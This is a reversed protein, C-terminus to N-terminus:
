QEAAPEESVTEGDSDDTPTTNKNKKKAKSDKEEEDDDKDDKPLQKLIVIGAAIVIGAIVFYIWGGEEAVWKFFLGFHPITDTVVGIIESQKVPKLDESINADGKTYFVGDGIRVIRHTTPITEGEHAFTIVDYLKYSDAKKVIVLDGEDITGAMSGTVVVHYSRGFLSVVPSKYVFKDVVLMIAIILLFLTFAAGVCMSTLRVIEKKTRPKKFWKAITTKLKAFFGQEATGAAIDVPAASAAGSEVQKVDCTETVDVALDVANKQEPTDNKM